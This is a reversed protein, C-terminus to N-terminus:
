GKCYKAHQTFTCHISKTTKLNKKLILMKILINIVMFLSWSSFFVEAINKETDSM